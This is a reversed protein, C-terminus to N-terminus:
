LCSLLILIALAFLLSFVPSPGVAGNSPAQSSPTSASQCTYRYSTTNDASPFCSTTTTYYREVSGITSTNTCDGAYSSVQVYQDHCTMKWNEGDETACVDLRYWESIRAVSTVNGACSTGSYGLRSAQGPCTTETERCVPDDSIPGTPTIPTTPTTRGNLGDRMSCWYAYSYESDQPSQSNSNLCAGIRHGVFYFVQPPNCLSGAYRFEGTIGLTTDCVRKSSYGSRISCLSEDYGDAFAFQSDGQCNPGQWVQQVWANGCTTENCPNPPDYAKRLSTLEAALHENSSSLTSALNSSIAGSKGSGLSAEGIIILASVAFLVFFFKVM